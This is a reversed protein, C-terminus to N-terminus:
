QDKLGVTLGIALGIAITVLIAVGTGLICCWRDALRRRVALKDGAQYDPGEGESKWGEEQYTPPPLQPPPPNNQLTTQQQQQQQQSELVYPPIYPPPLGSGPSSSTASVPSGRRPNKQPIRLPVPAIRKLGPVKAPSPPSTAVENESIVPMFGVGNLSSRSSGLSGVNRTHGRTMAM